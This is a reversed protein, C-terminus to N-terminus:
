DFWFYKWHPSSADHVAYWGQSREMEEPALLLIWSTHSFMTQEDCPNYVVWERTGMNDLLFRPQEFFLNYAEGNPAYHFKEVGVVSPYYDKWMALLSAPYRGYKGHYEEIAGIFEASHAIANNRSFETLPAALTLQALLVVIPMFVLYLPVPNFHESEATKLRRLTPILRAVAYLWLVLTLLGFSLGVTALAVLSVAIAVVSSVILTALAFYYGRAKTALNLKRQARKRLEYALWFVGAPVLLLGLVGFAQSMTSLAMALSDYSGPLFPYIICVVVLAAIGGMRVLHLAM